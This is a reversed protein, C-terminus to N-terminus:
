VFQKKFALSHLSEASVCLLYDKLTYATEAYQLLNFPNHPQLLVVEELAALSQSYRHMGSM